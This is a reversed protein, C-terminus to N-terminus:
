RLVNEFCQSAALWGNGIEEKEVTVRSTTSDAAHIHRSSGGFNTVSHLYANTTSAPCAEIDVHPHNGKGSTEHRISIVQSNQWTRFNTKSRMSFQNLRSCFIIQTICRSSNKEVYPNCTGGVCVVCIIRSRVAYITGAPLQHCV